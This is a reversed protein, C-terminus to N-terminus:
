PVGSLLVEVGSFQADIIVDDRGDGDLDQSLLANGFEAAPCRRGISSLGSADAALIEVAVEGPERHMVVVEDAGDGDVDALAIGDHVSGAVEVELEGAFGGAGDGLLVKSGILFDLAGDGDVDGTDLPLGIMGISWQARSQADGFGAGEHLVTYVEADFLMPDGPVILDDSGDGDLDGLVLARPEGPLEIAERATLAGDAGVDFVQVVPCAAPVCLLEDDPGAFDCVEGEACPMDDTIANEDCSAASAIADARAQACEVSNELAVLLEQRGDGDVDVPAMGTAHVGVPWEESRVGVFAGLGDGLMVALYARDDRDFTVGVADLAGDGDVDIAAGVDGFSCARSDLDTSCADQKSVGAQLGGGDSLLLLGESVLDAIGDANFDGAIRIDSGRDLSQSGSLLDGAEVCAGDGGAGGGDGDGAADGDGAMMMADDITGNIVCEGVADEEATCVGRALEPQGAGNCLWDSAPSLAACRNAATAEANCVGPRSAAECEAVCSSPDFDSCGLSAKTECGTQCFSLDASAGDGDGEGAAGEGDGGEGGCAALLAAVAAVLMWARTGRAM